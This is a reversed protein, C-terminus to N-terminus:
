ARLEEGGQTRAECLGRSNGGRGPSKKQLECEGAAVAIESGQTVRCSAGVLPMTAAHGLSMTQSSRSFVLIRNLGNATDPFTAGVIRARRPASAHPAAPGALASVSGAQIICVVTGNESLVTSKTALSSAYHMGTQRNKRKREAAPPQRLDGIVM